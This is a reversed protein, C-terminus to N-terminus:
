FGSNKSLGGHNKGTLGRQKAALLLWGIGLTARGHCPAIGPPSIGVHTDLWDMGKPSQLIKKRGKNSTKTQTRTKTTTWVRSLNAPTDWGCMQKQHQKRRQEQSTALARSVFTVGSLPSFFFFFVCNLLTWFGTMIKRHNTLTSEWLSHNRDRIYYTYIYMYNYM